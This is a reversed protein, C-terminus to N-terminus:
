SRIAASSSGPSPTSARSRSRGRRARAAAPHGPAPPRADDQRHRAPRRAAPQPTRRCRDRAGPPRAGPRARRRPRTLAAAPPREAGRPRGAAPRARRPPLRGRRRPARDPDPRRRGAVGGAGSRRRLRPAALRSRRAGEAAALVGGVPRVRGDLALEGVAAAGILGDYPIQGSAALIALAIPLDFGSGEKRLEAPALNVTIRRTPWELEASTIGSRVREKAEQCARDALGVIAFAPVGLQLHAEVEVRRAELGVVAHTVTRALVRSSALSARSNCTQAPLAGFNPRVHLDVADGSGRRVRSSSSSRCSCSASTTRRGATSRTPSRLSGPATSTAWGPAASRSAGSSRPCHAPRPQGAIRPATEYMRKAEDYQGSKFSASAQEYLASAEEGDEPPRHRGRRAPSARASGEIQELLKQEDGGARFRGYQLALDYARDFDGLHAKCIALNWVITPLAEDHKVPSALLTEFLDTARRGTATPSPPRRRSTSMM